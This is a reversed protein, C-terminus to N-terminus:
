DSVFIFVGGKEMKKIWTHLAALYNEFIDIGQTKRTQDITAVKLSGQYYWAIEWFVLITQCMAPM